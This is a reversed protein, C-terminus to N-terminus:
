KKSVKPLPRNASMLMERIKRGWLTQRFAEPQNKYFKWAYPAYKKAEEFNNTLRYFVVLNLYPDFSRVGGKIGRLLWREAMRYNGLNEYVLGVHQAYLAIANTNKENKKALRYVKLAYAVARKSKRYWWVRAIGCVANPSNPNIKLASRYLSETFLYLGQKM